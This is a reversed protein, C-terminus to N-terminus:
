RRRAAATEETRDICEDDEKHSLPVIVVQKIRRAKIEQVVLRYGEYVIEEGPQPIHGLSYLILGAVTDYPAKEPQAMGLTEALDYVSLTGPVTLKGDPHRKLVPEPHPYEDETSGIIEELLDELTVLGDTGGYEDLVIALHAGAQQFQRLMEILRLSGPALLPERAVDKVQQQLNHCQLLLEKTHVVGVIHDLNGEYVPYRTYGRQRVLDLVQALPTDASVATIDTRPKMIEQVQRDAFRFVGQVLTPEWPHFAGEAVGERLMTLIEEDTVEDEAEGQAPLLAEVLRLVLGSSRGLIWVLPHALRSLRDLPGSLTMALAVNQRLALEKPVLEGLILTLYSIAVVVLLLAAIEAYIAPWPLPLAALRPELFRVVSAGGVASALTGVLTIGIQVTSLFRSPDQRLALARQAALHGGAALAQLRGRRASIVAIEAAAFFGNLLILILILSAELFIEDM